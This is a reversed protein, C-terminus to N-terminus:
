QTDEIHGATGERVLHPVQENFACVKKLLWIRWVMQPVGQFLQECRLHSSARDLLLRTCVCPPAIVTPFTPAPARIPTETLKSVVTGLCPSSARSWAPAKCLAIKLLALKELMAVSALPTM